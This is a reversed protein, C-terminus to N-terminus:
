TSVGASLRAAHLAIALNSSVVPRGLEEELAQVCSLTHWGTCSLVVADAARLTDPPLRYLLTRVDAPRVDAFGDDLGLSTHARVAVGGARLADVESRTVADPYPTALVVRTANFSALAGLLADFATITEWPLPPGGTFGASTCALVVADLPVHRLSDMATTSAERLGYWFSADVATTRSAPVLRAYHFVTHVLGLRPLEEEVAM